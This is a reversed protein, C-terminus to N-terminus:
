ECGEYRDALRLPAGEFCPEECQVTHAGVCQGAIVYACSDWGEARLCAYPLVETTNSWGGCTEDDCARVQYGDGTAQEDCPTGPLEYSTAGIVTACPEELGERIEYRAAGAVPDWALQQDDLIGQTDNSCPDAVCPEQAATLPVLLLLLAALCRM